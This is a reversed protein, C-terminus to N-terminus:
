RGEIHNYLADGVTTIAVALALMLLFITSFDIM